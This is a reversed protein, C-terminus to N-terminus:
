LFIVCASEPEDMVLIVNNDACWKTLEDHLTDWLDYALKPSKNKWAIKSPLYVTPKLMGYDLIFSGVDTTCVIEEKWRPEFEFINM